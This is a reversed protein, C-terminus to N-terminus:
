RVLFVGQNNGPFALRQKRRAEPFIGDELEADRVRETLTLRWPLVVRTAFQLPRRCDLMIINGEESWSVIQQLDGEVSRMAREDVRWTGSEGDLIRDVEADSLSCELGFM